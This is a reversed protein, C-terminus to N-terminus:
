DYKFSEKFEWMWIDLYNQHLLALQEEDFIESFEEGYHEKCKAIVKNLEEEDCASFEIDILWKDFEDFTENLPHRKVFKVIGPHEMM